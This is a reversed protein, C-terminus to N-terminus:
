PEGVESKRVVTLLIVQAAVPLLESERQQIAVFAIYTGADAATLHDLALRPGDAHEIKKGDKMWRYNVAVSDTKPLKGVAEDFQTTLSNVLFSDGGTTKELPKQLRFDINCVFPQGEVGTQREPSRGDSVAVRFAIEPPPEYAELAAHWSKELIELSADFAKEATEGGYFRKTKAVGQTDLLFRMWSGAIDYVNLNGQKGLWAYFDTAETMETLRPLRGTARYHKAIAHVDWNPVADLLANALGEVPFMNRAKGPIKAAAVLHVMEHIRAPGDGYILCSTRYTSFGGTDSVGTKEALDKGDDFLFLTYRVDNAVELQACIRALEGEAAVAIRKGHMAAVSDPRYFVDLHATHESATLTQEIKQQWRRHALSGSPDSFM